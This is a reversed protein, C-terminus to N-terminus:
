PEGGDGPQPPIQKSPTEAPEPMLAAEGKQKELWEQQHREAVTLALSGSAELAGRLTDTVTRATTPDGDSALWGRHEWDQGLRQLQRMSIGGHQKPNSLPGMWEYIRSLNFEGGLGEIAYSTLAQEKETLLPHQGGARKIIAQTLDAPTHYTQLEYFQSDVRLLARGPINRAPLSIGPPLEGLALSAERKSVPWFSFRMSCASRIATDMVASKPLSASLLCRIGFARAQTIFDALDRTFPINLTAGGAQVTLTLFEDIAVVVLPLIESASVQRNYDTWDRVGKGKLLAKRERVVTSLQRLLTQAESVDHAIPFLLHPLGGYAALEVGGKPDVVALQLTDPGHAALLACLFSHIVGSKGCGTPGAILIHYTDLLSAWLPGEAAQGLPIMYLGDPRQGLNLEVKKPLRHRPSEEPRLDIAYLFMGDSPKGAVPKGVVASLDRLLEPDGLDDTTVKRPLRQLDVIVHAIRGGASMVIREQGTAEGALHLRQSTGDKRMYGLRANLRHLLKSVAQQAVLEAPLKKNQSNDKGFLGPMKM